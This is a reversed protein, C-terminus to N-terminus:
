PQLSMIVTETLADSGRHLFLRCDLPDPVNDRVDIMARWYNTQGVVPYASSSLVASAPLNTSIEVGSQRDLGALRDGKFDFVYKTAGEIPPTGPAGAPGKFFDVNRAATGISLDQSTWTLKYALEMSGGAVAAEAPTWFAGINDATEKDTPMEYLVVAGDGWDGKPEVWLGPRRDYFVSDDQYHDFKQDRQLLGFGKPNPTQFSNVRATNSNALPRWIREGTGSWIALGDSDHIEPRWDKHVDHNTQDYWFMSTEVALGLRRIDQRFFLAAQIDQVVGQETLSSDFRYAGTVSPGDLLAYILFRDAGVREIWFETFDPFEEAEPLGINVAIARASLGYQGRSGAARFYSAGLFAIWDREGSSDMIRFGAPDAHENGQFLGTTEKILRAKGNEVVHMVVSQEAVTKAAPFLRVMGEIAEGDGYTLKVYEDFDKAMDRAKPPAKYAQGAMKRARQKLDDWSFNQPSGLRGSAAM